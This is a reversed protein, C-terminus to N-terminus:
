RRRRSGLAILFIGFMSLLGESRRPTLACLGPQPGLQRSRNYREVLENIRAANDTELELEGSPQMLGITEAAPNGDLTPLAGFEDLALQRGDEYQLFTPAFDCHVFRTARQTRGIPTLQELAHFSPDADMAAPSLRTHLRTLTASATLMRQARAGPEVVRQDFELALGPEQAWADPDIADEYCELCGWFEGPTLGDPVPLYKRLLPELEPHEFSCSGGPCGMLSQNTLVDVAESAAIGELASADWLESFLDNTQVIDPDDVFEVVFAQGGAEEVAEGLLAEYSAETGEIWDLRTPNLTVLPWDLPALHQPALFMLHLGLEQAASLQTLRLPLHFTEGPSRLAIPHIEDVGVGGRLSLAVFAFGQEAYDELVPVAAEDWAYGGDEFWAQLQAVSDVTTHEFVGAFGRELQEEPESDGPPPEPGFSEFPGFFLPDGIFCSSNECNDVFDESLIHVKSTFGLVNEFLERSSTRVEVPGEVPIVWAFDEPEGTYTLQLHTETYRQDGSDDIWYIASADTQTLPGAAANSRAFVGGSAAAPRPQACVALGLGTLLALPRVARHM